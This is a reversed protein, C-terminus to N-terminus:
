LSFSQKSLQLIFRGIATELMFIWPEMPPFLFVLRLLFLLFLKISDMKVCYMENETLKM